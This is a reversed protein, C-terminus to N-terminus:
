RSLDVAYLTFREESLNFYDVAADEPSLAYATESIERLFPFKDMVKAYRPNRGYLLYVERPSRRLQRELNALVRRLVPALFPHFMFILLPGDPYRFKTADENLISIRAAWGPDRAINARASDCLESAIEVGVLWRFPFDCAVMLARGKGCGLDVFTFEEPRLPLGAIAQRLGSPPIGIYATIYLGSLSVGHLEAGSIYGGTDTGHLLDFPHAQNLRQRQPAKPAKRFARDLTGSLGHNKLSRFLRQYSHVVAGRVGNKEVSRVLRRFLLLPPSPNFKMPCYSSRPTEPIGSWEAHALASRHRSLNPVGKM